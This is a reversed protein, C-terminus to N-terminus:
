MSRQPQEFRFMLRDLDVRGRKVEVGEMRLLAEKRKKGFVYGGIKGDSRVVRHCPILVPFPNRSLASAVARWCRPRGLARAIEGYTTVKGPPIKKVLDLVANEFGM